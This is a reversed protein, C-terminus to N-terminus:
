IGVAFDQAACVQRAGNGIQFLFGGIVIRESGVISGVIRECNRVTIEFCGVSRNSHFGTKTIILQFNIGIRGGPLQRNYPAFIRPDFIRPDFINSGRCVV